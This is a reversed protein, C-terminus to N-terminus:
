IFIQNYVSSECLKYKIFSTKKKERQSKMTSVIKQYTVKKACSWEKKEYYKKNTYVNQTQLQKTNSYILAGKKM